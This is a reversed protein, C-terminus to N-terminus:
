NLEGAYERHHHRTGVDLNHVITTAGLIGTHLQQATVGTNDAPDV